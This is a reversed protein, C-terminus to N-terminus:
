VSVVELGLHRAFHDYDRDEHLLSHGNVICYTAIILDPVAPTIGLRRLHRYNAAAVVALDPDLLATIGHDSFGRLLTAAHRESRAGRLVELAVLDGVIFEAGNELELMEAAASRRGQLYSIWVSSDVVIV